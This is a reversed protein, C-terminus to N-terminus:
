RREVFDGASIGVSSYTVIASSATEDVKLVVVEGIATRANKVGKAEHPLSYLFPDIEIPRYVIFIDGPKIGSHVGLDLYVIGGTGAIGGEM